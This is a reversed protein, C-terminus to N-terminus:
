FDPRGYFGQGFRRVVSASSGLSSRGVQEFLPQLVAHWTETIFGDPVRKQNALLHICTYGRLKESSSKFHIWEPHEYMLATAAQPDRDILATLTVREGYILVQRWPEGMERYGRLESFLGVTDFRCFFWDGARVFTM